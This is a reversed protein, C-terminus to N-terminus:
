RIKIEKAKDKSIPSGRHIIRSDFFVASGKDPCLKKANLIFMFFKEPLKM